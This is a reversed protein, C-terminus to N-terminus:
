CSPRPTGSPTVATTKLVNFYAVPSSFPTPDPNPVERYWLYLDDIWARVWSKEEALTGARDAYPAGTQPDLGTRPVACRAAYQSSSSPPASSSGSGCAATLALLAVALPRLPRCPCPLGSLPTRM